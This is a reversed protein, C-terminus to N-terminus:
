KKLREVSQDFLQQVFEDKTRKKLKELEDIVMEREADDLSEAKKCLNYIKTAYSTAAVGGKEKTLTQQKRFLNNYTHFESLWVESSKPYQSFITDGNITIGDGFSFSHIDPISPLKIENGNIMISRIQGTKQRYKQTTGYTVAYRGVIQEDREAWEIAYAYRYKKEPDNKDLFCAYMYKSGPIKGIAVTKSHGDGVVLQVYNTEGNNEGSNISYAAESDKHIAEEIDTVLRRWMPASPLTFDYVDSQAEKQGTEPDKELSHQASIQAQEQKKLAEFAKEINEQAMLASPLATLMATLIISKSKM